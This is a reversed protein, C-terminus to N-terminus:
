GINKGWIGMALGIVTRDPPLDTFEWTGIKQQIMEAEMATMWMLRDNGRMAERYNELQEVVERTVM